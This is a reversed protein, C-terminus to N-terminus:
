EEMKLPVSKMIKGKNEVDDDDDYSAEPLVSYSAV